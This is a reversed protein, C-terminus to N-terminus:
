ALISGVAHMFTHARASICDYVSGYACIRRRMRMRMRVRVRMHRHAHVTVCYYEGGCVHGLELIRANQYAITHLGMRVFVGACMRMHTKGHSHIRACLRIRAVVLSPTLSLIRM